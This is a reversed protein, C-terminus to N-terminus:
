GEINLLAKYAWIEDLDVAIRKSVVFGTESIRELLRIIRDKHFPSNANAGAMRLPFLLLIGPISSSELLETAQSTVTSVHSEIEDTTLTPISDEDWCTYFTYNMCVFLQLAHYIILALKCDGDLWNGHELMQEHWDQLRRQYMCGEQALSRIGPHSRRLQKPIDEIQDFFMKSFSSVQVFLEFIEDVRDQGTSPLHEHYKRWKEQSLITDDSYLIARNVELWNFAGFFQKGLKNILRPTGFSQLIRSTGYLMHNAWQDGSIQTMLKEFLGLLLTCWLVGECPMADSSQLQLQLKQISKGYSGLAVTHPSKRESAFNVTARRSAELAGIAITAERLPACMEILPLLDSLLHSFEKTFQCRQMFLGFYDLYTVDPKATVQLPLEAAQYTENCM